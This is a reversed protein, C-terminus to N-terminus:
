KCGNPCTGDPNCRSGCETCFNVPAASQVPAPAAKEPVPIDFMDNEAANENQNKLKGNIQIINKVALILMLVLEYALRVVIPGLLMVLIGQGGYWHTYGWGSDYVYFLMCFGAILCFATAFIYTAQLFKEIFLTKFNVIDSLIKMFKNRRKKEPVVFIFACVTAGLALIMAIISIATM